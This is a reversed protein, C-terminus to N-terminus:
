FVASLQHTTQTFCILFKAANKASAAGLGAADNYFLPHRVLRKHAESV